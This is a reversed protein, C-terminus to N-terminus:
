NDTTNDYISLMTCLSYQACLKKNIMNSKKRGIVDSQLFLTNQNTMSKGDLLRKVIETSLDDVRGFVECSQIQTLKTIIRFSRISSTTDPQSMRYHHKLKLELTVYFRLKHSFLISKLFYTLERM